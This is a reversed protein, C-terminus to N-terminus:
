KGPSQTDKNLEALEVLATGHIRLTRRMYADYKEVYDERDGFLTEATDPWSVRDFYRLQIVLREDPKKMEGVMAALIAHEQREEAIKERISSELEEKRGILEAIRDGVASGSHPMGDLRQAKPSTMTSEMRELRTIQNDIDRLMATYKGLREKIEQTISQEAM